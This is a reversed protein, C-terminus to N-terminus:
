RAKAIWVRPLVDVGYYRAARQAHLCQLSMIDHYSQSRIYTCMYCLIQGCEVTTRLRSIERMAFASIERMRVDNRINDDPGAHSTVVIGYLVIYVM